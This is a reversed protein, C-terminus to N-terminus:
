CVMSGVSKKSHSVCYWRVTWYEVNFLVHTHSFSNANVATFSIRDDENLKVLGSSLCLSTCLLFKFSSSPKPSNTLFQNVNSVTITPWLSLVYRSVLCSFLYSVSSIGIYLNFKLSLIFIITSYILLISGAFSDTCWCFAISSSSNQYRRNSSYM